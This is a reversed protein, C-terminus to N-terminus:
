TVLLTKPPVLRTLTPRAESIVKYGAQSTNWLNGALQGLFYSLLPLILQSNSNPAFIALDKTM